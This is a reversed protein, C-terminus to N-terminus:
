PSEKFFKKNNNKGKNQKVSIIRFLIIFCFFFAHAEM